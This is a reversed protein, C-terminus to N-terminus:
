YTKAVMRQKGDVETGIDGDKMLRPQMHPTHKRSEQMYIENYWM